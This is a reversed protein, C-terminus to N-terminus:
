CPRSQFARWTASPLVILMRAPPLDDASPSGGPTRRSSALANAIPALRQRRLREVLPRLTALSAAPRSRLATIVRGALGDDDETWLGDRGTGAIQIWAPIGRSRVVVGWHEGDPDAAKPGAPPIDIWAILASDAPLAAQIQALGAVEGALAGHDQIM